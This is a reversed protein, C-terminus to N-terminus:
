SSIKVTRPSDPDPFVLVGTRNKWIWHFHRAEGDGVEEDRERTAIVGGQSPFRDDDAARGFLVGLYGGAGVLGGGGAYRDAGGQTAREREARFRDEKGQLFAGGGTFSGAKRVQQAHVARHHLDDGVAMGVEIDATEGAHRAHRVLVVEAVEVFGRQRCVAQRDVQGGRFGDKGSMGTRCDGIGTEHDRIGACDENWPVGGPLEEGRKRDFDQRYARGHVLPQM